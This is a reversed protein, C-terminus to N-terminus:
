VGSALTATPAAHRDEGMAVWDRPTDDVRRLIFWSIIIMGLLVLVGIGQGREPAMNRGITLQATIAWISPGIVASFRGVMNYLGYFEGIRDPPTLRLMLPRDAAWIGGLAVGAGAAVVYLVWLPLSSLGMMAALSFVVVWLALVANLTRKPGFRDVLWGWTFGGLVAFTIAGMMVLQATKEGQVKSEGHAIAVNVTYLSMIAIVTNIADTYFIRGFLFRGLGPYKTGDRLTAVTDTVSTILDRLRFIPRPNPNGRERVFLFCPLSLVLFALAIYLFLRTKDETGLTLGLGVAIYSGLYGVGVGIGSIRGRNAETSVDALMADYFQLGAQYAANAVIFAIITGTTGIRGLLMTFSVCLVTSVILFPMRRSARDSMAGLLPSLVFIIGMSVATITGYVSDAREAGVSDRVWLSFYLSVIGMTFITNALDYIVWSAVSRRTIVHPPPPPPM